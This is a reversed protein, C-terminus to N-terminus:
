TFTEKLREMRAAAKPHVDLGPELWELEYEGIRNKKM